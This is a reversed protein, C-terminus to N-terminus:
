LREQPRELDWSKCAMRMKAAGQLVCIKEIESNWYGKFNKVTLRSAFSGLKPLRELTLVKFAIADRTGGCSPSWAVRLLQLSEFLGLGRSASGSALSMVENWSFVHGPLALSRFLDLIKARVKQQFAVQPEWPGRPPWTKSLVFAFFENIRRNEGWWGGYWLVEGPMLGGQDSSASGTLPCPFNAAPLSHGVDLKYDKGWGRILREGGGWRETGGVKRGETFM